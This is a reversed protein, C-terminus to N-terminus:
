INQIAKVMKVKLKIGRFDSGARKTKQGKRKPSCLYFGKKNKCVKIKKNKTQRKERETERKEEETVPQL